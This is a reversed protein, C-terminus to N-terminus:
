TKGGFVFMLIATDDDVLLPICCKRYSVEFLLVIKCIYLKNCHHDHNPLVVCVVFTVASLMCVHFAIGLSFVFLKKLVIFRLFSNNM